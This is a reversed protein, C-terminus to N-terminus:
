FWTLTSSATLTCSTITISGQYEFEEPDIEVTIQDVYDNFSGSDFATLGIFNITVASSPVPITLIPTNSKSVSGSAITGWTINAQAVGVGTLGSTRATVKTIGGIDGFGSTVLGKLTANRGTDQLTKSIIAM